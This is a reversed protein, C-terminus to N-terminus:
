SWDSLYKAYFSKINSQYVQRRFIRAVVGYQRESILEFKGQKDAARLFDSVGFRAAESDEFVGALGRYEPTFYREDFIAM